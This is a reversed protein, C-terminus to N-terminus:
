LLKNLNPKKYTVPKLIKGSTLDFIAIYGNKLDKSYVDIKNNKYSTITQKVIELHNSQDKSILKTMNSEFVEQMALYEKDNLNLVDISGYTVFLIDILSDLIEIRSPKIEKNKVNSYITILNKYIDMYSLGIAFGFEIVEELILKFRLEKYQLDEIVTTEEKPVKFAKHFEMVSELNSKPLIQVLQLVIQYIQNTNLYKSIDIEIDQNDKTEVLKFTLFKNYIFSAIEKKNHYM